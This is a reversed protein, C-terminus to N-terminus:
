LKTFFCLKNKSAKRLFDVIKTCISYHKYKKYNINIFDKVSKINEINEDFWKVILDKKRKYNRPFKINTM